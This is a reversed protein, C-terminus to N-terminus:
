RFDDVDILSQIRLSVHTKSLSVQDKLTNYAEESADRFIQPSTSYMYAERVDECARVSVPDGAIHFSLHQSVPKLTSSGKITSFDTSKIWRELLPFRCWSECYIQPSHCHAWTSRYAIFDSPNSKGTQFYSTETICAESRCHPSSHRCLECCHNNLKTTALNTLCSDNWILTNIFNLRKWWIQTRLRCEQPRFFICHWVLRWM